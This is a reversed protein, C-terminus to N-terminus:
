DPPKLDVRPPATERGPARAADDVESAPLDGEDAGRNLITEGGRWKRRAEAEDHLPLDKPEEAM